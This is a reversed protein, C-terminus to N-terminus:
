QESCHSTSSRADSDDANVVRLRQRPVTFMLQVVRDQAAREVDWEDEGNGDPASPRQLQPDEEEDEVKWDQAGRRLRLFSADSTARQPPLIEDDRSSPKQPSISGSRPNQRRTTNATSSPTRAGSMVRRVSGLWGEDKKEKVPSSPESRGRSRSAGLLAEGEAQLQAFSTQATSYSDGDNKITSTATDPRRRTPSSPAGSTTL